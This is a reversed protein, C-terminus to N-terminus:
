LGASFASSPIGIGRFGRRRQRLKPTPSKGHGRLSFAVARYGLGAFYDLFYEDWCWAGHWAGHWARHVFLLPVPHVPTCVGRDIVELETATSATAAM